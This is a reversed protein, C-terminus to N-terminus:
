EIITKTTKTKMEKLEYIAVKGDYMVEDSKETASLFEDETNENERQVFITKPYKKM